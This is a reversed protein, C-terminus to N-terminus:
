STVAFGDIAVYPHSPMSLVKITLTHRGSKGFSHKFLLARTAFSPRWLDVRAVARGDLIVLALGRTPGLPGFWRVASGTFTFTATAGPTRSWTVNGGLYGAYAANGWAGHYAIAGSHESYSRTVPAAPKAPTPAPTPTPSSAPVPMPTPMAAPVPSPTPTPTPAAATPGESASAGPAATGAPASASVGADSFWAGFPAYAALWTPDGLVVLDVSLWNATRGTAADIGPVDFSVTAGPPLDDQLPSALLLVPQPNAPDPSSATVTVVSPAVRAEPDRTDSSTPSPAAPIAVRGTNTVRVVVGTGDPSPELDYSVARDGWVRVETAPIDVRQAAPLPRRGTDRMEVDVLYTGPAQPASVALTISRSSTVTRRAAVSVRRGPLRAGLAPAAQAWGAAAVAAAPAAQEGALDSGDGAAGSTAAAVVESDLQVPEWTAVFEVGAPIAGGKWALRITTRSGGHLPGSVVPAAFRYSRGAISGLHISTAIRSVSVGWGHSSSWYQQMSRLTPQGGWWRGGPTLYADRIFRATADINAAYTAFASAYRVPNRDYANYGFLNHKVRSIYSTGWGSEHLAAALLFRANVGYKKEATIFAAGLRPLPTTSQLYEDIAWASVGSASRLNTDLTIPGGVRYHRARPMRADASTVALSMLITAALLALVIRPRRRSTM